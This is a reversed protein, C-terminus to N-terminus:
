RYHRPGQNRQGLDPGRLSGGVEREAPAVAARLRMRWQHHYCPPTFVCLAIDIDAFACWGERVVWQVCWLLCASIAVTVRAMLCVRECLHARCVDAAGGGTPLALKLGTPMLSGFEPQLGFEPHGETRPPTQHLGVTAAHFLFM